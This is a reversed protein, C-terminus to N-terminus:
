NDSGVEMDLIIRHVRIYPVIRLHSTKEENFRIIEGDNIEM